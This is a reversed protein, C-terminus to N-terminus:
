ADVEMEARLRDLESRDDPSDALPPQQERLDVLDDKPWSDTLGARACAQCHFRNTYMDISHHGRPCVLPDIAQGEPVHDAVM